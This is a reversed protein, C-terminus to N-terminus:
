KIYNQIDQITRDVTSAGDDGVSKYWNVTREITTEFGWRPGWGLMHHAKDISLNLLSAEHPANPDSQDSWEGPWHKLVESVLTGVTRNAELSPGFNFASCLETYPFNAQLVRAGNLGRWMEAALLLYGGLPELM